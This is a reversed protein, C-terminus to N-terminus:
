WIGYSEHLTNKKKTKPELLSAALLLSGDRSEALLPTAPGPHGRRGGASVPLTKSAEVRSPEPLTSIRPRCDSPPPFGSQVRVRSCTSPALRTPATLPLGRFTISKVSELLGKRLVRLLNFTKSSNGDCGAPHVLFM